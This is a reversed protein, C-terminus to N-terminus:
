RGTRHPLVSKLAEGKRVECKKAAWSVKNRPYIINKTIEGDLSSIWLWGDKVSKVYWVGDLVEEPKDIVTFEELKQDLRLKFSYTFTIKEISNESVNVKCNQNDKFGWTGVNTKKIANCTAYEKHSQESKKVVITKEIPIEIKKRMKFVDVLVVVLSALFLVGFLLASGSIVGFVIWIVSLVYEIIQVTVNAQGDYYGAEYIHLELCTVLVCACVLVLLISYENANNQSILFIVVICSIMTEILVKLLVQLRNKDLTTLLMCVCALGFAFSIMALVFDKNIVDDRIFLAIFVMSNLFGLPVIGIKWLKLALIWMYKGFNKDEYKPVLVGKAWFTILKLVGSFIPILVYPVIIEPKVLEMPIAYLRDMEYGGSENM